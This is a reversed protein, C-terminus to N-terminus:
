TQEQSKLIQTEIEKVRKQLKRDSGIQRKVREIISSVSSYKNIKFERAIEVLADGRLLRILYIAVKRPENDVGRRSVLLDERGVSYAQCVITKIRERSPALVRSEPVEEHTKQTYFKGKVWDIFRKDGLVSPLKKGELIQTIEDPDEMEVFQRYLRQSQRRDESLMSLAFDKNLWSWEKSESVYGRHSSWRYTDVKDVLGARLPNRHIYRLLELLYSDADLMISKYRGRFLQGDCHHYRNFRQTYVGNLHRMCRSLNAEPTQILMHYHTPLLCYASIKARWMDSIEKLLDTFALYDKKGSFIVDGRRGRNMVHYWAGPYQIRLARVM